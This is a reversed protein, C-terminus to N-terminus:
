SRIYPPGQSDRSLLSLIAVPPNSFLTLENDDAHRIKSLADAVKNAQRPIWEVRTTWHQRRLRGISRILSSHEVSTSDDNILRVAMLCDSQLLVCRFGHDWALKLGILMGWLETQLPSCYGTSRNYGLIWSGDCARIVGGASSRKLGGFVAGDSNLCVWGPPPKM